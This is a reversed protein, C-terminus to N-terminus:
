RRILWYVLTGLAALGVVLLAAVSEGGEQWVLVGLVIGGMGIVSLVAGVGDISREGTYPEDRIAGSGLLVVAIIVAELAFGVRWSLLTTVFGGVLPGVAAAIAARPAL